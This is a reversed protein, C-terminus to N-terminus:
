TAPETSMTPDSISYYTPNIVTATGNVTSNAKDYKASV